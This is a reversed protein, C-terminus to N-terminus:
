FSAHFYFSQEQHVIQNIHLFQLFIFILTITGDYLWFCSYKSLVKFLMIFWVDDSSLFCIYDGSAEEVGKQRTYGVGMNKKNRITKIPVNKTDPLSFG